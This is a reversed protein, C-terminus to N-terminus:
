LANLYPQIVNIFFFQPYIFMHKAEWQQIEVNNGNYTTNMSFLFTYSLFLLLLTM